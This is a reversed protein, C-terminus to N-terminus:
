MDWTEQAATLAADRIAEGVCAEGLDEGGWTVRGCGTCDDTLGITHWWTTPDRVLLSGVPLSDCIQSDFVIDQAYLIVDGSIGGSLTGKYVERTGAMQLQIGSSMDESLWSDSAPYTWLGGIKYSTDVLNGSYRNVTGDILGGLEFVVQDPDTISFSALLHIQLQEVDDGLPVLVESFIWGGSYETHDSLTGEGEYECILSTPSSKVTLYGPAEEEYIRRVLDDMIATPAVPSPLGKSLFNTVQQEVQASDWDPASPDWDDQGEWSVEGTTAGTDSGTDAPDGGTPPDPLAACASALLWGLVPLRAKGLLLLLM